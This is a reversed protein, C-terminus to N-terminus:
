MGAPRRIYRAEVNFDTIPRDVYPCKRCFSVGRRDDRITKRLQAARRSCWLSRQPVLVAGSLHFRRASHERLMRDYKFGYRGRALVDWGLKPARLLGRRREQSRM